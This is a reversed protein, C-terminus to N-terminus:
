TAQTPSGVSLTSAGGKVTTEMDEGWAIWLPGAPGQGRRGAWAEGQRETKRKTNTQRQVGDEGKEKLPNM